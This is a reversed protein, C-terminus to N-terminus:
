STTRVKERRACGFLCLSAIALLAASTPEPTLRWRDIAAVEQPGGSGFKFMEVEVFNTILDDVPGDIGGGSYFAQALGGNLSYTVNITDSNPDYVTTLKLLDGDSVGINTNPQINGGGGDFDNHFIRMDGFSNLVVEMFGDAGFTKWKFDTGTTAFPNLVVEIEHTYASLSGPTSRSLKTGPGGHADTMDYSGAITTPHGNPDGGQNWAPDLGPGPFGDDFGLPTANAVCASFAIALLTLVPIATFFNTANSTLKMLDSGGM